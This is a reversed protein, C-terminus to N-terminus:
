LGKITAFSGNGLEFAKKQQIKFNNVFVIFLMPSIIICLLSTNSPGLSVVTPKPMSQTMTWLHDSTTVTMPTNIKSADLMHGKILIEKAYKSQCLFLGHLTSMVEIGLFYQLPRLYKLAFENGITTILQQIAEPYNRTIIIDDVYILMILTVNPHQLIFLSPDSHCCNFGLTMLYNFLRDFWARPAHKLDYLSKNLKCVHNPHHIDQFGLPQM